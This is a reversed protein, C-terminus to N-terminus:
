AFLRKEGDGSVNEVCRGCLEPHEAHSGVDQQHHWCRVCKTETSASVKIKITKGSETTSSACTDDALTINKINAKSTILVFRLEQELTSLLDQLDTEVYLTVDADLSSGITKDARLPELQKSVCARIEQISQWFAMNM